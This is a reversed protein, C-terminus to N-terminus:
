FWSIVIEVTEVQMVNNLATLINVYWNKVRLLAGRFVEGNEAQLTVMVVDEEVADVRVAAERGIEM